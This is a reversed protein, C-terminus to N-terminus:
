HIQYLKDIAEVLSMEYEKENDFKFTLGKIAKLLKVPNKDAHLKKFKPLEKLKATMYSTCQGLIITYLKKCENELKQLNNVYQTIKLEYIKIEFPDNGEYVEPKTLKWESLKDVITMITAGM